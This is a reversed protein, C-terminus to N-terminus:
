DEFLPRFGKIPEQQNRSQTPAMDMDEVLEFSDQRDVAMDWHDRNADMGRNPEPEAVRQSAFDFAVEEGEGELMAELEAANMDEIGLGSQRIAEEDVVSLQSSSPLFLPEKVTRAPFAPQSPPLPPPLMSTSPRMSAQRSTAPNEERHVAKMPKKSPGPEMSENRRKLNVTKNSTRPNPSPQHQTSPVGPVNSTSIVCLGSTCDGEVDIYLPATPDTFRLDLPLSMSEAFAITATFERLHFAITIPSAFLDYGDFEDASITLETALQAKGRSDLSSELTKVEVESAGFTWILQPDSKPGRAAPFHEIMGKVAKPGISLRSENRTDPLGPAMLSTPTQLLLRHTKIVGHKCHLRVILKSELGDLDDDMPEDDSAARGETITLECKDVSKDVTRHKLISLLPKTLLQGTVNIIQEPSTSNAQSAVSYKSFFAKEYKFRCYASM